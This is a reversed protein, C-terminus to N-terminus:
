EAGKRAITALLKKEVSAFQRKPLFHLAEVKAFTLVTDEPIGAKEILDQLTQFQEESINENDPAPARGDTDESSALGLAAKLTYRQLYTVTSGVAQKDNKNGTDDPSGILTTEESHGARHSLICTVTINRGDQHLRFRYSLGYRSLIPDVTRAIEAFDEFRYNTRGKATTFDVKRNKLVPPIESKAKAMAEDFERRAHGATWREHLDMLMKITEVPAGNAMASNLMEMPTTPPASIQVIPLDPRNADGHTVPLKSVENM